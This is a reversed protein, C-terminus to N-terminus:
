RMLIMKKIATFEGAQLRYFYVGGALGSADFTVRYKGASQKENVLIKIKQGLVNYVTLKVDSVASLRYSIATIPNFPNPYNQELSFVAPVKAAPGDLATPVGFWDLSREILKQRNSDVAVQELGIGFYVTKYMGSDYRLAGTYGNNYKLVPQSAGSYSEIWEPYNNSYGYPALLSFSLGDGIPDGKVGKMSTGGSNDNKYSADLYTHYFDKAASFHSNGQQDHIDWGIDQGFLMLNGGSDLYAKLISIDSETFAPTSWSVNWILAKFQALDAQKNLAEVDSQLITLYRAGLQDLIERFNEEYDAGGDDDVLLVDTNQAVVGRYTRTFGYDYQKGSLSQAANMNKAFIDLRISGYEGATVDLGFYFTDGPAIVTSIEQGKKGAYSAFSYSWGESAQVNRALIKVQLEVPNDNVIRYSRSAQENANLVQIGQETEDLVFTPIDTGAQIVTKDEDSQVWSVIALDDFLWDSGIAQTFTFSLSDGAELSDLFVGSDNPLMKRMVDNFKKEGNTGPASGYEVRREIVATRLYLQNQEVDQLATVTVTTTLSDEGYQAAVSIKVPAPNELNRFMQAQMAEPNSPVGYLIGDMVYNPVGNIGYYKIRNSNETTNASYMPDRGPWSAHYRVSIIGGYYKSYYDQLGPNYTACPGCSANTAEELLVIRRTQSQASILFLFVVLLITHFTRM